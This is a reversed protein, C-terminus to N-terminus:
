KSSRFDMLSKMIKPFHRMCTLPILLLFLVRQFRCSAKGRFFVNISFLAFNDIPLLEIEWLLQGTQNARVDSMPFYRQFCCSTKKIIHGRGQVWQPGVLAGTPVSFATVIYFQDSSMLCSAGRLEQQRWQILFFFFDVVCSHNLQYTSSNFTTAKTATKWWMGLLMFISYSKLRLLFFYLFPFM